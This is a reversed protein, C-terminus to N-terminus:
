LSNWLDLITKSLDLVASHSIWLTSVLVAMAVILTVYLVETRRVNSAEFIDRFLWRRIFWNTSFVWQLLFIVILVWAISRFNRGVFQSIAKLEPIQGSEIAPQAFLSIVAVVIALFAFASTRKSLRLTAIISKEATNQVLEGVRAKLSQLL